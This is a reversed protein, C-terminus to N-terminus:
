WHSKQCGGDCYRTTNCGSCKRLVASPNGCWSCRYLAVHNTNVKPHSCKLGHEPSDVHLNDLWAALDVEAKEPSLPLENVDEDWRKIIAGWEEVAPEYLKVITQETLRLNTGPSPSGFFQAIDDSLKLIQLASRIEDSNISGEPGKIALFLMVFWYVVDRMHRNDPPAEGLYTKADEFASMLFAIGQELKETGDGSEAILMIGMDGAHEVARQLLQFRIFPTTQTCKLGKKAARLGATRDATLSLTYYFYAQKKNREVGKQAIAIADRIRQKAIRFKIDLIDAEDLKGAARLVKACEPLADLWMRFPLGLDMMEGTETQFAGDAVSYETSTIQKAVALGLAHLDYDQACKMMLEQFDKMAKAKMFTETRAFGYNVLVENIHSPFPRRARALFQYPDEPERPDVAGERHLRILGGLCDCRSSWEKSRLGAVLCTLTSPYAKCAAPFNLTSLSLLHVAHNCLYASVDPKKLTITILRFIKALDLSQAVQVKSSDDSAVLAGLSHSLSSIILEAGIMDDPHDELQRILEPVLKKVVDARVHSGGHPTVSNLSRLALHRCYPLSLLPILKDLYARDLLKNCLINDACMKAFIGVIGGRIKENDYKEYAKDLRQYIKDFDGHVKKLGSRSALDPLKYRKSLALVIFYWDEANEIEGIYEDPTPPRPTQSPGSKKSKGNSKNGPGPM